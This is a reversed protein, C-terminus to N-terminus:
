MLSMNSLLPINKWDIRGNEKVYKEDCHVAEISAYFITHDGGCPTESSIVKCELAVACDTLIPADVVDGDKWKIDMEKFKDMDKGSKSGLFLYEKMYDEKPYNIVFVGSEEILKYSYHTPVEGIMVILPNISVNSAFGVALANNKGEKSRCSVILAPSPVITGTNAKLSKM